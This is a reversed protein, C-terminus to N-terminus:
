KEGEKGDGWVMLNYRADDTLFRKGSSFHQQCLLKVQVVDRDSFFGYNQANLEKEVLEAALNFSSAIVYFDGVGKTSVLFLKKEGM